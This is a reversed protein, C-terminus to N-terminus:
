RPLLLRGLCLSLLLTMAQRQFGRMVIEGVESGDEVAGAERGHFTLRGYEVM